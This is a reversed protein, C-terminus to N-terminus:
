RAKRKRYERDYQRQVDAASPPPTPVIPEGGRSLAGGSERLTDTLPRTIDLRNYAERTLAYRGRALPAGRKFEAAIADAEEPTLM